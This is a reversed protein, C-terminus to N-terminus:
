LTFVIIGHSNTKTYCFYLQLFFPMILFPLQTGLCLGHGPTEQSAGRCIKM